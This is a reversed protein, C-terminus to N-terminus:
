KDSINFTGTCIGFNSALGLGLGLGLVLELGLRLRARVRVRHRYKESLHGKPSIVRRVLSSNGPPSGLVRSATNISM